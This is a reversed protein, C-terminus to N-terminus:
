HCKHLCNKVSLEFTKLSCFLLLSLTVRVGGTSTGAEIVIVIRAIKAHSGQAQCWMKWIRGCRNENPGVNLQRIVRFILLVYIRQNIENREEREWKQWFSNAGGYQKTRLLDQEGKQSENGGTARASLYHTSRLVSKRSAQNNKKEDM